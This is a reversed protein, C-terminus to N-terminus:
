EVQSSDTIQHGIIILITTPASQDDDYHFLFLSFFISGSDSNGQLHFSGGTTQRDGDYDQYMTAVWCCCCSSKLDDGRVVTM